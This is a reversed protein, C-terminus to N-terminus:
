PKHVGEIIRHRYKIPNKIDEIRSNFIWAYSYKRLFHESIIRVPEAYKHETWLNKLDIIRNMKKKAIKMDKVFDKYSIQYRDLIPM